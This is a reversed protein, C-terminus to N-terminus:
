FKVMGQKGELSLGGTDGDVMTVKASDDQRMKRVLNKVNEFRVLDSNDSDKVSLLIM